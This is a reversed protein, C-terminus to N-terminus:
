LRTGLGRDDRGPIGATIRACVRFFVFAHRPEASLRTDRIICCVINEASITTQVLCGTTLIYRYLKTALASIACWMYNIVNGPKVKKGLGSVDELLGVEQSWSQVDFHDGHGSIIVYIIAVTMM